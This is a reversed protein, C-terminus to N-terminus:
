MHKETECAHVHAMITEALINLRSRWGCHQVGAPSVSVRNIIYEQVYSQKRRTGNAQTDSMLSARWGVANSSMIVSDATDMAMPVDPAVSPLFYQM